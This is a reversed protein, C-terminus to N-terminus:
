SYFMYYDTTYIKIDTAMILKQGWLDIGYPIRLFNIQKICAM